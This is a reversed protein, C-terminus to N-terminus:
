DMDKVDANVIRLREYHWRRWQEVTAPLTTAAPHALETLRNAENARILEAGQQRASVDVVRPGDLVIYVDV